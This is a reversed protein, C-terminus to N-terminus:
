QIVSQAKLPLVFFLFDYFEVVQEGHIYCQTVVDYSLQLVLRWNDHRVCFTVM